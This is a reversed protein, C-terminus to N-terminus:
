TMSLGAPKGDSANHRLLFDFNLLDDNGQNLNLGAEVWSRAKEFDRLELYIRAAQVIIPVNEPESQLFEEHAQKMEEWKGLKSGVGFMLTLNRPNSQEREVARAYSEYALAPQDEIECLEGALRALEPDRGDLQGAKALADKARQYQNNALFIKAFGLFPRHSNAKLKFARHFTKTAKLYDGTEVLCEGLGILATFADFDTPFLIPFVSATLDSERLGIQRVGNQYAAIAESYKHQAQLIGGLRIWNDAQYGREILDRCIQEAEEFKRLEPLLESQFHNLYQEGPIGEPISTAANFYRWSENFDREKFCDKAKKFLADFLLGKPPLYPIIKMEVSNKESPNNVVRLFTERKILFDFSSKSEEELGIKVAQCNHDYKLYGLTILLRSNYETKIDRTLLYVYGADTKECGFKYSDLDTLPKDPTHISLNKLRGIKGLVELCTDLGTELDRNVLIMQFPYCTTDYIEAIFKKLKEDWQGVPLVFAVKEVLSWPEPPLDAKIKRLNHQFDEKNRRQQVSIRDSKFFSMYYEGTIVPVHKFETFFCLKRTLDWDILVKIGEDYGNIDLGLQRRHMLSVHLIHNFYFMFDRNFDRSVQVTKSLSYRKGTLEDKIFTVAYLDSYVAQYGPNEDLAAALVSFHNPYFLDDDGLYTIYGGRAERLGFNLRVALGRNVEDHFYRIRSDNFEEIVYRVDTGGDNMVLLEWDQLEQDVISQVAERLFDPRNYTGMLVTVKPSQSAM